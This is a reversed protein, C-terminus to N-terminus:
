TQKGFHKKIWGYGLEVIYLLSVKISIEYIRDSSIRLRCSRIWLDLLTDFMVFAVATVRSGITVTAAAVVVIVAVLLLKTAGLFSVLCGLYNHPKYECVQM